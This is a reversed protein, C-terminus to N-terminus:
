VTVEGNRNSIPLLARLGTQCHPLGSVLVALASTLTLPIMAYDGMDGVNMLLCLGCAAFVLDAIWRRQRQLADLIVVAIGPAILFFEYSVVRPVLLSGVALGLWIRHIQSLQRDEAFGLAALVMLGAFPVWLLTNLPSAHGIGVLRLWGLFGHGPLDEVAYYSVIAVWADVESTGSLVFWITPALGLIAGATFWGLRNFWATNRLLFVALLTLWVQKISGALVIVSFLLLPFRVALPAAVALLGYIVGAVNGWLVISGTLASAFPIRMGAPLGRIPGFFPIYIAAALCLFFVLGYATLLAPQGLMGALWASAEGSWPIYLFSSTTELGPCDFQGAPPYMTEGRGARQGACVLTEYEKGNYIERGKALRGILGSLLPLFFIVSLIPLFAPAGARRRVWNHFCGMHGDMDAVPSRSM